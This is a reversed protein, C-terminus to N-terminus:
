RKPSGVAGAGPSLRAGGVEDHVGWGAGPEPRRVLSVGLGLEGPWHDKACPSGSCDGWSVQSVIADTADRLTLVDGANQLSLGDSSWQVVAGGFEGTPVGGGFVVLTAGPGLARGLPFAHREADQADGLAWGSLCVPTPGSNVIEVFEDESPDREGDGNTDGADGRPPDALIESIVLGAAAAAQSATCPVEGPVFLFFGASDIVQAADHGARPVVALQWAFETGLARAQARGVGFYRQGREVRTAGQAEAEPTGRVMEDTAATTTDEEGLLVVFPTAFFRRLDQPRVPSGHLGYPVSQYRPDKGDPLTYWGANAAVARLVRPEPLFTLLRHTFQAGASHGFLYYGPQRGGLSRRVAEFLHEVEAYLYDDPERWSERGFLTLGAWGRRKVGLTYDANKPYAEKPFHIVIALAGHREAVPAAARVYREADRSAGHMVFWIPGSAPDFRSGRYVLATLDNGDRAKFRVEGFGRANLGAADIWPAAYPDERLGADGAAAPTAVTAAAALAVACIRRTRRRVRATM